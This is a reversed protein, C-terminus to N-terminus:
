LGVAYWYCNTNVGMSKYFVLKFKGDKMYYNTGDITYGRLYDVSDLIFTSNAPFSDAFDGFAFVSGWFNENSIFDSTNMIVIYPKFDLGGVTATVTNGSSVTIKGKAFKFDRLKINPLKNILDSLKSNDELTVGLNTLNEKFDTYCTVVENKINTTEDVLNKLTAM